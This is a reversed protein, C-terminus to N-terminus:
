FLLDDLEAGPEPEAPAEAADDPVLDRHIKREAEMTYSKRLHAFLPLAAAPPAAPEGALEELRFRADAMTESIAAHGSLRAAAEGLHRIAVPGDQNLLALADGLRKDVTELLGVASVAERELWGVQGAAEGSSAASFSQALAAAQGLSEMASEAAIVTEGTLERLQRAIVNLARGRPGLQACRVAANLSVLRMNAEIERVAEVHDLLVKVTAQVDHAVGELKHRETECNRLVAVANHVEASFAGLTSQGADGYVDRSRDM